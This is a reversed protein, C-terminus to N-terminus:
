DIFVLDSAQTAHIHCLAVALADSEDSSEFEDQIDLMVAVMDRVQEKSSGGYDTVAQKIQRPAYTTSPMGRQAAVLMAIAQAHGIAMAASVNKAAFPQEIAMEDPSWRAAVDNLSEYLHALREPLNKSKKPSVITSYVHRAEDDYDVVGVGLHYTGPDIGLVRVYAGRLSAPDRRPVPLPKDM